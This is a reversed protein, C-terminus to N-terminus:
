MVCVQESIWQIRKPLFIQFIKLPFNQLFDRTQDFLKRDGVAGQKIAECFGATIERRALTKLTEVDILVGNPQHFAGVLNKGFVTNVGTKGGVSSDIQALLTTPVQLFPLGRNFIAAAFGSLDGIVGGGLAIVADARTLNNESFFLLAKELVRLNKYKEGDPMLFVSTQFDASRLSELATEGYFNFVRKNSILCVRTAKNQLCQRAFNGLEPLNNFDVQIEYNSSVSETVIQIKNM